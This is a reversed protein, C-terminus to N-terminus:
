QQQEEERTKNNPRHKKNKNKFVFLDFLYDHHGTVEMSTCAGPAHARYACGGLTGCVTCYYRDEQNKIENNEM